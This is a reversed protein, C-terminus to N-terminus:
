ILASNETYKKGSAYEGVCVLDIDFRKRKPFLLNNVTAACSSGCYKNPYIALKVCTENACKKSKSKKISLRHAEYCDNGCYKSTKKRPKYELLCEPNECIRTNM